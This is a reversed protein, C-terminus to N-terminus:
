GGMGLACFGLIGLVTALAGLGILANGLDHMARLFKPQHPNKLGCKPCEKARDSIEAQCESCPKLAM